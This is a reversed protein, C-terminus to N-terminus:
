HMRRYIRTRNVGLLRAAETVNGGTQALARQILTEEAQELNLPIEFAEPLAHPPAVPTPTRSKPRPGLRLHASSIDRGGSDILAGEILNKLERVNGPFDHSQLATVADPKLVLQRLGMETAFVRLFHAALLPIDERRERLPPTEVTYRALRFFLDRRFNGAEIQHDLDANTAALIRVDVKRPASAGVPTVCGDELVRLLKAQLAAPMDGIEDLFLTGGDAQEFFGKRDTTAGTFGGRVHGFLSSEALEAPIAVCNVPVFPGKGRASSYHIARAVLEKGTGSEGTILVSTNAFPQLRAIEDLIRQLTKSKGVFGGMGWHEAERDTIASLRADAQERRAIEDVLERNKQVLDRTLRAIKLHTEVRIRVEDADFPKSIYDVGGARFGEVASASETRGTIFIVPIGQTTPNAKLERCIAFGDRGPMMVDLLILDPSAKQAIKLALEGGPAALIEFGLPELTDTLVALNKPTDDVLLIKEPTTM